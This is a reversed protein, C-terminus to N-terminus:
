LGCSKKMKGKALGPSKLHRKKAPQKPQTTSIRCTESVPRREKLGPDLMNSWQSTKKKCSSWISIILLQLILHLFQYALSPRASKPLQKSSASKEGSKKGFCWEQRRGGLPMPKPGRSSASALSTTIPPHSNTNRLEQLFIVQKSNMWKREDVIMHTIPHWCSSHNQPNAHSMIQKIRTKCKPSTILSAQLIVHLTSSTQVSFPSTGGSLNPQTKRMNERQADLLSFFQETSSHSTYSIYIQKLGLCMWQILLDQQLKHLQLLATAWISPTSWQRVELSLVVTSAGHSNWLSRVLSCSSCAESEVKCWWQFWRVVVIIWGAVVLLFWLVKVFCQLDWQVWGDDWTLLWQTECLLLIGRYLVSWCVGWPILGAFRPLSGCRRGLSIVCKHPTSQTFRTQDARTCIWASYKMACCAPAPPHTSSTAQLPKKFPPKITIKIPNQITSAQHCVKHHSLFTEDHKTSTETLSSKRSIKIVSDSSCSGRPAVLLIFSRSCRSTLCGFAAMGSHRESTALYWWNGGPIVTLLILRLGM